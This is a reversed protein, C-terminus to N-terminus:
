EEYQDVVISRDEPSLIVVVRDIVPEILAQEYTKIREGRRDFYDLQWTFLTKGVRLEGGDKPYPRYYLGEIDVSRLFDLVYSSVDSTADSVIALSSNTYEVDEARLNALFEKNEDVLDQKSRSTESMYTMTLIYYLRTSNGYHDVDCKEANQYPNTVWLGANRQWNTM